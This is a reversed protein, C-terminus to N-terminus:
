DEAKFETDDKEAFVQCMYLIGDPGEAFAIGTHTFEAALINRRSPFTENSLFVEFQDAHIARVVNEAVENSKLSKKLDSVHEVSHQVHCKDAMSQAHAHAYANLNACSTDLERLGHERRFDNTWKMIRETVQQIIRARTGTTRQSHKVTTNKHLRHSEGSKRSQFSNMSASSKSLQSPTGHEPIPHLRERPRELHHVAPPHRHGMTQNKEPFPRPQRPRRHRHRREHRAVDLSAVSLNIPLATAHM